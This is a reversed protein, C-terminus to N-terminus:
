RKWIRIKDSDLIYQESKIYDIKEQLITEDLDSANILLANELSEILIKETDSRKSILNGNFYIRGPLKEFELINWNVNQVLEIEFKQKKQNTCNLTVTGGDMWTSLEQILIQSTFDIQM